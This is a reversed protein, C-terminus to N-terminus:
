ALSRGEIWERHWAEFVMLSWLVHSHNAVGALHERKMREIENTAFIGQETLHRPELLEEMLPRFRNGLWNKIPISFGEKARYVCDRPVQRAAVEKLLVKTQGKAVKLRDPLKFALEVLQPDLFPVRVELSTAMSMRDAKVLINDPLYTKFDVYLARTVPSFHAAQKEAARIHQFPDRTLTRSADPTFLAGRARESLFLRWRSHGLDAPYGAGEVFRKLKNVLGKKQRQPPLREALPGVVTRRLWTPISEYLRARDQALYTEYGGFLEDGGDGSLAVTVFERAAQSVLFTPFISFDGIPDDLHRLLRSFLEVVNPEIKRERHHVGLHDAVSRAFGSEDYSAEAFSITFTEAGSGMGAVVLSSDVGGSLFAGVPVDSVMQRRVSRTIQDEVADRWDVEVRDSPQPVEWYSRITARGNRLDFELSQGPELKRVGKLLTNPAPVYEWTLFEALSDTELERGVLGSALLAKIESGWVLHSGTMAYYLPKIGVHDRALLIKHHRRDHIAFAFMGNLREPLRSGHEEYGHVLVETDSQTAFRHGKAELAKRLDRFNYIEGNFVTRVSGDENAIPQRGSHLDIIALRRMGIGVGDLVEAGEDDPGRYIITRCMARITDLRPPLADAIPAIGVIGCM